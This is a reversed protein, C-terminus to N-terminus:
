ALTREKSVELAAKLMAVDQEHREAKGKTGRKLRTHNLVSERPIIWAEGIKAAGDFRGERCLKGIRSRDLKLIEAAESISVFNKRTEM